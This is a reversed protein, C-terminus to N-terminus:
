ARLTLPSALISNELVSKGMSNPRIDARATHGRREVYGRTWWRTSARPVTKRSGEMEGQAGVWRGKRQAGAAHIPHSM